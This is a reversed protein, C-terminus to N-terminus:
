KILRFGDSKRSRLNMRLSGKRRWVGGWGEGYDKYFYFKGTGLLGFLSSAECM